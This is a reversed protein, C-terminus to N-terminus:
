TVQEHEVHLLRKRHFMKSESKSSLNFFPFDKNLPLLFVSKRSCYLMVFVTSCTVSNKHLIFISQDRKKTVVTM